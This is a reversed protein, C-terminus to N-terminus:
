KISKLRSNVENWNVINWFAEVFKGRENKYDIYYAHEFVDIVMLIPFSPYLNMNHKEIQTILLRKTQPCLALAAWGSGEVSVAVQSFERRFREFSGFEEKLAEYLPQPPEGGGKAVPAMSQWFISHLLHGGINFSLEKLTSKLDIEIGEKRAKELRQLIANAGNVYAQHHKSHHIRLQEESMYPALDGYGYPLKPLAYFREEPM